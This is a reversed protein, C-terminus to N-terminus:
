ADDGGRMQWEYLRRAADVLNGGKASSVVYRDDAKVDYGSDKIGRKIAERADDEPLSEWNIAKSLKDFAFGRVWAPRDDPSATDGKAQQSESSDVGSSEDSVAEGLDVDDFEPDTGDTIALTEVADSPPPLQPQQPYLQPTAGAMRDLMIQQVREDAMDPEICAFVFLGNREELYRLDYNFSEGLIQTLCRKTAQTQLKATFHQRIKAPQDAEVGEAVIAVPQDYFGPRSFAIQARTVWQDGILERWVRPPGYQRCGAAAAMRMRAPHKIFGIGGQLKAVERAVDVRCPIMQIKHFAPPRRMSELIANEANVITDADIKEVSGDPMNIPITHSM